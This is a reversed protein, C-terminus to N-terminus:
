TLVKDFRQIHEGSVKKGVLQRTLIGRGEVFEYDVDHRLM